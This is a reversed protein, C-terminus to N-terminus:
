ELVKHFSESSLLAANLGVGFMDSPFFITYISISWGLNMFLLNMEPISVSRISVEKKAPHVPVSSM